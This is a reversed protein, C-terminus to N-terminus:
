LIHYVNGSNGEGSSFVLEGNGSISVTFLYVMISCQLLQFFPFVWFLCFCFFFRSCRLFSFFDGRLMELSGLGRKANGRAGLEPSTSRVM